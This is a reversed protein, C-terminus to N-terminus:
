LCHHSREADMSSNRGVSFCSSYFYCTLSIDINNMILGADVLLDKWNKQSPLQACLQSNLPFTIPTSAMNPLWHTWDTGQTRGHKSVMNHLMPTRPPVCYHTRLEVTVTPCLLTDETGSNCHSM